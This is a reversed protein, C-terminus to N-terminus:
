TDLAPLPLTANVAVPLAVHNVTRGVDPVVGTMRVNVAETLPSPIPVYAPVIESVGVPPEGSDIGTFRTMLAGTVSEGLGLVNFKM